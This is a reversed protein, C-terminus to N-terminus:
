LVFWLTLIAFSVCNFGTVVTCLYQCHCLAVLSFGSGDMYWAKM